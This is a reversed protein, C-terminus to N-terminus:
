DSLIKSPGMNSPGMKSLFIPNFGNKRGKSDLVKQTVKHGNPCQYQYILCHFSALVALLLMLSAVIINHHM